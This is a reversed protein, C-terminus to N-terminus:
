SMRASQALNVLVKVTFIKQDTVGNSSDNVGNSLKRSVRQSSVSKMSSQLSQTKAREKDASAMKLKRLQKQSNRTIRLRRQIRKLDFLRIVRKSWIFDLGKSSPKSSFLHLLYL